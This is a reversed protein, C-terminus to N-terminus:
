KWYAVGVYILFLRIALTTKLRGCGSAAALDAPGLRPKQWGMRVTSRKKSRAVSNDRACTGLGMNREYEPAYMFCRGRARTTGM